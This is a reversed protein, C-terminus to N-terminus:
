LNRQTNLQQKKTLQNKTKISAIYSNKFANNDNKKILLFKKTLKQHTLTSIKQLITIEKYFLIIPLRKLLPESGM